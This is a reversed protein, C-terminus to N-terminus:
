SAVRLAQDHFGGEFDLSKAGSGRSAGGSLAADVVLGEITICKSNM